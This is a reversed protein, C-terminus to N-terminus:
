WLMERCRHQWTTCLNACKLVKKHNDAAHKQEPKVSRRAYIIINQAVKLVYPLNLLNKSYFQPKLMLNWTKPSYFQLKKTDTHAIKRMKSFLYRVVKKQLFNKNFPRNFHCFNIGIYWTLVQYWVNDLYLITWKQAFLYSFGSTLIQAKWPYTKLLSALFWSKKCSIM